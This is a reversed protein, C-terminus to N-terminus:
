ETESEYSSPQHRATHDEQLRKGIAWGYRRCQFREPVIGDWLGGRSVMWREAGVVRVISSVLTATSNFHCRAVSWEFDCRRVGGGTLSASFARRQNVPASLWAETASRRDIQSSTM